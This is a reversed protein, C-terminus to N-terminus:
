EDCKYAKRGYAYKDYEGIYRALSNLSNDGWMLRSAQKRPEPCKDKTCGDCGIERCEALEPNNEWWHHYDQMWFCMRKHLEDILEKQELIPRAMELIDDLDKRLTELTIKM